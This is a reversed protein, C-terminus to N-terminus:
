RTPAPQMTIPTSTTRFQTALRQTVISIYAARLCRATTTRGASRIALLAVTQHHSHIFWATQVHLVLLKLLVKAATEELKRGRAVSHGVLRAGAVVLRLPGHVVDLGSHFDFKPRGM